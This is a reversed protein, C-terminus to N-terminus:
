GETSSEGIIVYFYYYPYVVIWSDIYHIVRRERPELTVVWKGRKRVEFGKVM